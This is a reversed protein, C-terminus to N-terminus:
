VEWSGVGGGGGEGDCVCVCGLFPIVSTGTRPVGSVGTQMKWKKSRRSEGLVNWASVGVVVDQTDCRISFVHDTKSVDHIDIKQEPKAGEKPAKEQYYISYM